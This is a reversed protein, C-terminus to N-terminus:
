KELLALFSRGMLSLGSKPCEAWIASACRSARSHIAANSFRFFFYSRHGRYGCNEYESAHKSVPWSWM